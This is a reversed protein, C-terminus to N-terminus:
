TKGQPDVERSEADVIRYGSNIFNRLFQENQGTSRILLQDLRAGILENACSYGHMKAMVDNCEAIFGTLYFNALQEEKSTTVSVPIEFELRYIGESSQALFTRYREESQRLATNTETLQLAQDHVERFLKANQIAIAAQVGILLLLERDQQTFLLGTGANGLTIVGLLQDRYM